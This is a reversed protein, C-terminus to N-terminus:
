KPKWKRLIYNKYEGIRYGTLKEIWKKLGQKFSYNTKSIDHDFKWNIRALREQMVIPHKGKFLTLADIGSYDFDKGSVAQAEHGWYVGVEESKRQMAKPDRVYGYHYICAGVQKVTLKDNPKKRFGQADRYSFIDDRKRVVRIERRYWRPASGIYDYSGYFHLYDFLLGEVEPNNKHLLM